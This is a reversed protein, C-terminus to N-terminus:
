ARRQFKRMESVFSLPKTPPPTGSSAQSTGSTSAPTSPLETAPAFRDVIKKAYERTRAAIIPLAESESLTPGREKLLRQTEVLVQDQMDVLDANTRYFSDWSNKVQTDIARATDRKEIEALAKREAEATIHAIFKKPETFMMEELDIEPEAPAQPAAEKTALAETAGKLYAESALAKRELDTMYSLLEDQTKFERNGLKIKAAETEVPTKAPEVPKAPESAKPAITIDPFDPTTPAEGTSAAQELPSDQTKAEVPKPAAAPAASKASPAAKDAPAPASVPTPAESPPTAAASPTAGKPRSSKNSARLSQAEQAFTTPQTM